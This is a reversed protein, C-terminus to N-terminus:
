LPLAIVVSPIVRFGTAEARAVVTKDSTFAIIGKLNLSKATEILTKVLESVGEHRIESSLAANSVLTDIQCYGGEVMRLFGFAVCDNGNTAVAGLAPLTDETLHHFTDSQQGIHLALLM